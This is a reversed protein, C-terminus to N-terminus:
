RLLRFARQPFDTILGTVGAKTFRLMEDEDNVTFLNISIGKETIVRVQNEDILTSRANYTAFELGGWDLPDTESYGILAQIALSPNRIQVERLWEHHFSSVIVRGHDIGADEISALVREVMPFNEMPPSLRKLELNVCFSADRTFRLAESLTPIKENRYASLDEQSVEGMAIRGFPDATTFWSGADLSRLEELTFTNGRWPDRNPFREKVNTTRVLSEDHFLILEGDNTVSVDTEWLDAGVDLAKRAAALTNEPALSRAGRHAIILTM